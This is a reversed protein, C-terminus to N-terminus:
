LGDVQWEHGNWWLRYLGEKHSVFIWLSGDGSPIIHQVEKALEATRGLETLRRNIVGLLPRGLSRTANQVASSVPHLSATEPVEGVQAPPTVLFTRSRGTAAFPNGMGHSGLDTPVKGQYAVKVHHAGFQAATMALQEAVMAEGSTGQSGFVDGTAFNVVLTGDGEVSASAVKCGPLVMSALGSPPKDCLAQFALRLREIGGAGEPLPFIVPVLYAGYSFAAKDPKYFYAVYTGAAHSHGVGGLVLLGSIMLGAFWRRFFSM